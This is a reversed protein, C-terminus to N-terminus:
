ELLKQRLLNLAAYAFRHKNILRERHFIFKCIQMDGKVLSGIFVTGVPKEATGGTPGAIGTIALACDSNFIGKLGWLMGQATEASVAGYQNLTKEQVGLLQQKVSNAYAIVGGCFYNSSGPINTLLNGILGGTCSEAVSITFQKQLLLEAIVQELTREGIEYVFQSTKRLIIEVAATIKEQAEKTKAAHAGLRLDVGARHPLFALNVLQTIENLPSLTEFLSSEFIGTTRITQYVISGTQGAYKQKLLPLVADQMTQQMEAPVGPMVFCLQNNREFYFSAATGLENPLLKAEEPVLAQELNVLPMPVGRDAFRQEIRVRLDKNEVLESDFFDAVSKKTIDDHTPGLGGTLLVINVRSLSRALADRIADANDGIVTIFQAPIGIRWMQDAIWTANTNQTSGNLLEDGITIIEAKM